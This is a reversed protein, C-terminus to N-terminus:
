GSDRLYAIYTRYSLSKSALFSIKTPSVKAVVGLGEFKLTSAAEFRVAAPQINTYM